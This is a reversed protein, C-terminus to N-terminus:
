KDGKWVVKSHTVMDHLARKERNFACMLFPLGFSFYWLMRLFWKFSAQKMELTDNKETVVILGFIDKGLTSKLQSSEQVAWYMWSVYIAFLPVGIGRMNPSFFWILLFFGFGLWFGMLAKPNATVLFGSLPMFLLDVTHALYRVWFTAPTGPAIRQVLDLSRNRYLGFLGTAKMIFVAPFAAAFALPAMVIAAALINLPGKLLIYYVSAQDTGLDAMSMIWLAIKGTLGPTFAIAGEEAVVAGPAAVAQMPAGVIFESMYPNTAGILFFIGAALALVPLFVLGAIVLLYLTPGVNKVFVQLLEWLIWAKYPHKSTMHVLAIPLVLVPLIQIVAAAGLLFIMNAALPSGLLYLLGLLVLAIPLVPGIVVLPWFVTRTGGAVSQFFDFGVRDAQFKEKVITAYIIKLDLYLFWGPIGSASIVWLSGWFLKTPTRQCYVFAMYACTANMTAFLWWFLGTRTALSINEKLFELSEGWVKSYFLQPDPGKMTRRRQEAPDMQGTEVNMGCSRCVPDDEQMEGACYPCISPGDGGSEQLRDLDFAQFDAGSDKEPAPPAKAAAGSTAEPVKLKTGCKPCAIVKGRAKDPANLVTQCGQCRIKPM